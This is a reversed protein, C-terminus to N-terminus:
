LNVTTTRALITSYSFFSMVTENCFSVPCTYAIFVNSLFSTIIFCCAAWTFASRSMKASALLWHITFSNKENWTVNSSYNQM